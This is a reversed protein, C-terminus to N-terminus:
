ELLHLTFHLHTGNLSDLFQSKILFKDQRNWPRLYHLRPFLFLCFFDLPHQPSPLRQFGSEGGGGWGRFCPLIIESTM